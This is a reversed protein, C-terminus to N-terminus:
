GQNPAFRRQLEELGRRARVNNPNILLVQELSRIAERPHQATGARWLWAEENDPDITLARVFIRYAAESHGSM